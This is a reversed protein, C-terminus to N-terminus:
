TSNKIREKFRKAYARRQEYKAARYAPKTKLAQQCLEISKQFEHLAQLISSQEILIIYIDPVPPELAVAREYSASAETLQGLKVQTLGKKRWVKYDRDELDTARNYSDLAEEYMEDKALVAGQQSLTKYNGPELTLAMEYSQASDENRGLEKLIDAKKRWLSANKPDLEIRKELEILKCDLKTILIPTSKEVPKEFEISSCGLQYSYPIAKGRAVGRYFGESFSIAAEDTISARMGIVYDIHAAIERAQNESSCINLVVCYIEFEKAFVKFLNALADPPVTRSNGDKGELMLGQSNGHGSFHVIHPEIDTIERQLDTTTTAGRDELLTYSKDGLRLELRIVSIEKDLRLRDTDKPNASLILIKKALKSSDM